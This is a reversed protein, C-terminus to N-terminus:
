YAVAPPPAGSDEQLLIPLPGSPRRRAPVQPTANAEIGFRASRNKSTPSATTAAAASIVSPESRAFPPRDGPAYTRATAAAAGSAHRVRAGSAASAPTSTPATM